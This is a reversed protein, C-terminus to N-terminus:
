FRVDLRVGAPGAHWRARSVSVETRPSGRRARQYDLFSLVGAGVLAAAGLGFCINAALADREGTSKLDQMNRIQQQTIGEIQDFQDQTAKFHAAFASAIILSALGAGAVVWTPKGISELYGPAVERAVMEIHLEGVDDARVEARGRWTVYGERRAEVSYSGAKLDRLHLPASGRPKGDLVIEVQPVSASISLGGLAETKPQPLRVGLLAVVAADLTDARQEAARAAGEAPATAPTEPLRREARGSDVGTKVDFWRLSLDLGGGSKKVKVLILSAAKIIRGFEQLCAVSTNICGVALMLDELMLKSREVPKGVKALARALEDMLKPDLQEGEVPLLVTVPPPAPSPAAVAPLQLSLTALLLAGARLLRPVFVHAAGRAGSDARRPRSGRM